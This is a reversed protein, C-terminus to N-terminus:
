AVHLQERPVTGDFRGLTVDVAVRARLASPRTCKSLPRVTIVWGCTMRENAPRELVVHGEVVWSHRTSARMGGAGRRRGSNLGHAIWEISGRTVWELLEDLLHSPQGDGLVLRPRRSAAADSEPVGILSSSSDSRTALASSSNRHESTSASQAIIRLACPLKSM